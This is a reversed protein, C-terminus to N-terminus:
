RVVSEQALRSAHDTESSVKVARSFRIRHYPYDGHGTIACIVRLTTHPPNEQLCVCQTESHRRFQLWPQLRATAQSSVLSQSMIARSDGFQSKTRLTQSIRCHSLDLALPSQHQSQTCKKRHPRVHWTITVEANQLGRTEVGCLNLDDGQLPPDVM